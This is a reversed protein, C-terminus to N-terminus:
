FGSENYYVAYLLALPRSLFMGLIILPMGDSLRFNENLLLFFFRANFKIKETMKKQSVKKSMIKCMYQIDGTM